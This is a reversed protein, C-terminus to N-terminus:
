NEVGIIVHVKNWLDWDPEMKILGANKISAVQPLYGLYVIILYADPNTTSIAFSGDENTIVGLSEEGKIRISAGFIEKGEEDVVKGTVLFSEAEVKRYIVVFRGWILYSYDTKNLLVDLIYSVSENKFNGTILKNDIRDQYIFKDFGSQKALQSLASDLPQNTFEITIKSTTQKETAGAQIFCLFLCCFLFINKKM